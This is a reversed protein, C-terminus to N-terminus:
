AEILQLDILGKRIGDEHAAATLRHAVQKVEDKANGMAVGAGVFQLMELDNLGDGFAAAQEPQLGAVQLYAAIGSAKSCGENQIDVALPHWRIFRLQPFEEVYDSMEGEECFLLGQYVAHEHYYEPMVLPIEIGFETFSDTVRENALSVATNDTGVMGLAHGRAGTSRSIKDLMEASVPDDIIIDGNRVVYSGNMSVYSHINLEERIWKFAYPTRGTAIVTEVGQQQLRAISEKASQPISGESNLLTGDIDFFVVKYMM